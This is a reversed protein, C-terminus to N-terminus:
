ITRIDQGDENMQMVNNDDDTTTECVRGCECECESRHQIIM